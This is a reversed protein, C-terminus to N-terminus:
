AQILGSLVRRLISESENVVIKQMEKAIQLSINEDDITKKIAKITNKLGGGCCGIILPVVEVTFGVRKERIEFAIQRYKTLKENRKKEINGEMPCAMDYLWIKKKKKNEITLDPRRNINEKRGHYQFDWLIKWEENQIVKNKEWKFQYWKGDNIIQNRKGFEFAFLSLAKNHRKLYQDGALMECGALIHQVNEVFKGCVRCKDDQTPLGRIKKWYKTEVMQECMQIISSTKEPNLGTQMWMFSDATQMRWIESQLKKSSYTQRRQEIKGKKYIKKLIKNSEKYNNNIETGDVKIDNINIELEKGIERFSRVVETIISAHEKKVERTWVKQLWPNTSCFLYCIIRIKTEEYADKICKLGRGGEKRPLYLREDSSQPAHMRNERLCRKIIMELSTIEKSTYKIVNMGYTIVPVVRTNIANMLNRDNLEYEVINEMREEVKEKVKEYIYYRDIGNAQELGLFKYYDGSEPEFTKMKEGIIDLGKGKVIRGRNFVIEACKKVGYRAGTDLSAQVITDHVLELTQEDEQYLKLDDMFLSHTRKISREGPQGMKYGKSKDILMGVPIESLCFTVASLSDGQLLGRKFNIWSSEILQEKNYMVLKTKWRKIIEVFLQITEKPIKIWYLVQMVWDHQVYDYAKKYDYYAVALNRKDERIEEMICQDILLQDITGLVNERAGTQEKDWLDNNMLHKKLYAAILGTFIKYITNLCTIPRYESPLDLRDSKPILITKGATLWNVMEEPKECWGKIIEILNEYVSPFKKWWFNQIGDIGPASWNKRKKIEKKLDQISPEFKIVQDVKSGLEEAIDKMWVRAPTKAEKEWIGGWFERMKGMDPIEGEYVAKEQSFLVKQNEKYLINNRIRKSRRIMGELIVKQTRILDLLEEKREKLFQESINKNNYKEKM